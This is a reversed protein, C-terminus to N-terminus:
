TTAVLLLGTGLSGALGLVTARAAGERRGRERLPREILTYSLEALALSAALRLGLLPSAGWGLSGTWILVVHHWLYLSYARHGLAALPPWTLVRTLLTQSPALSSASVLTAVVVGFAALGGSYLWRDDYDALYIFTLAAALAAAGLHAARRGDRPTWGHVLLAALCGFLLAHARTDTGWYSRLLDDRMAVMAATSAATAVTVAAISLCRWQQSRRCILVVLPYALYFQEEISLSWTHRLPNDFGSHASSRSSWIEVWNAGFLLTGGAHERIMPGEPSSGAVLCVVTILVLMAPALRWFRRQYFIGLAERTPETSALLRTILFGSLGFFLDVGLFGGHTGPVGFHYAVVLAIAVGRLGDLAPVHTALRKGAPQVTLRHTTM